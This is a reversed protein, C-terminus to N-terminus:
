LSGIGWKWGKKILADETKVYTLTILRIKKNNSFFFLNLHCVIFHQALYYNLLTWVRSDVGSQAWEHVTVYYTLTVESRQAQSGM